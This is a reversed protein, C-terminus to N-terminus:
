LIIYENSWQRNPDSDIRSNFWDSQDDDPERIYLDGYPSVKITYTKENYSFKGDFGILNGNGDYTAYYKICEFKYEVGNIKIVSSGGPRCYEIHGAPSTGLARECHNVIADIIKISM